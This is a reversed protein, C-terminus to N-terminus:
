YIIYRTTYARLANSVREGVHSAVNFIDFVIDMASPYLLSGWPATDTWALSHIVTATQEGRDEEKKGEYCVGLHEAPVFGQESLVRLRPFFFPLSTSTLLTALVQREFCLSSM